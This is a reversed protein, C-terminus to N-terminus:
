VRLAERLGDAIDQTIGWVNDCGSDHGQEWAYSKVWSIVKPPLGKMYEDQLEALREGGLPRQPIYLQIVKAPSYYLDGEKLFAESVTWTILESVGWDVQKKTKALAIRAAEEFLYMDSTSYPALEVEVRVIDLGHQCKFHRKTM